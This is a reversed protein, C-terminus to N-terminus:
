REAFDHALRILYSLEYISVVNRALDRMSRFAAMESDAALLSPQDMAKRALLFQEDTAVVGSDSQCVRQFVSFVSTFGKM